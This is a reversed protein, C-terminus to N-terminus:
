HGFLQMLKQKDGRAQLENFLAAFQEDDFKIRASAGCYGAQEGSDFPTVISLRRRVITATTSSRLSSIATPRDGTIGIRLIAVTGAGGDSRLQDCGAIVV